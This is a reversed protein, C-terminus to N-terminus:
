CEMGFFLGALFAISERVQGEDTYLDVGKKLYKIATTAVSKQYANAACIYMQAAEHKANPSQLHAEAAKM